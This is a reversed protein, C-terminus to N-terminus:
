HKLMWVFAYLHFYIRASLFFMHFRIRVPLFLNQCIIIYFFRASQLSRLRTFIFEQYVPQYPYVETTYYILNDPCNRKKKYFFKSCVFVCILGFGVLLVFNLSCFVVFPLPKQHLFLELLPFNNIKRNQATKYAWFLM